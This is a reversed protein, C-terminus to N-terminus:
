SDHKWARLRLRSPPPAARPCLLSAPRVRYRRGAHLRTGLAGHGDAQFPTYQGPVPWVRILLFPQCRAPGPPARESVRAVSRTGLARACVRTTTAEAEGVERPVIDHVSQTRDDAGLACSSAHVTRSTAHAVVVHLACCAVGGRGNARCVFHGPGRWTCRSPSTSASTTTTLCMSRSTWTRPRSRPARCGQLVSQDRGRCAFSMIIYSLALTHTRPLQRRGSTGCMWVRRAVCSCPQASCSCPCGPGVAYSAPRACATRPRPSSMACRRSPTSSSAQFVAATVFLTM